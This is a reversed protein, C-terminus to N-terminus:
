SASSWSPRVPRSTRGRGPRRKPASEYDEFVVFGCFDAWYDEPKMGAAQWDIGPYTHWADERM